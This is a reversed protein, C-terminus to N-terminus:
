LYGLKAAERAWARARSEAEEETSGVVVVSKVPRTDPAATLWAIWHPGREESHVEFGTGAPTTETM